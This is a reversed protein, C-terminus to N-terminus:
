RELIFYDGFYKHFVRILNEYDGSKMETLVAETEERDFGLEKASRQAIGLLVFANGMPGTLDIINETKPTKKRIM